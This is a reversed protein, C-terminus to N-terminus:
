VAHHTTILIQLQKMFEPNNLFHCISGLYNVEDDSLNEAVHDVFASKTESLNATGLAGTAEQPIGTKAAIIKGMMDPANNMLKEFAPSEFFSKNETKALLVAMDKEATAVALKSTAERM